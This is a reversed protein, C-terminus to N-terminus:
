YFLMCEFLGLSLTGVLLEINLFSNEANLQNLRNTYEFMNCM